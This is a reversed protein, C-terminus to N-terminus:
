VSTNIEFVKNFYNELLTKDVIINRRIEIQRIEESFEKKLIETDVNKKIMDFLMKSEIIKQEDLMPDYTSLFAMLKGFDREKDCFELQEEFDVSICRKNQSDFIFNKLNVDGRSKETKLHFDNMYDVLSQIQTEKLKDSLECYTWGKIYELYIENEFDGMFTPTVVGVSQLFDLNAKEIDKSISNSFKKTVIDNEMTVVNKRSPFRIM